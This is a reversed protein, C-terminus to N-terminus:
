GLEIPQCIVDEIIAQVDMPPQVEEFVDANLYPEQGISPIKPNRIEELLLAWGGEGDPQLERVTYIIGKKPLTLGFDANLQMDAESPNRDKKIRVLSQIDM